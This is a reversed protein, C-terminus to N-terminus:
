MDSCILDRMSWESRGLYEAGEKLTLLRKRSPNSVREASEIGQNRRVKSGPTIM